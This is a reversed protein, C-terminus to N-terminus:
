ARLRPPRTDIQLDLVAEEQWQMVLASVNDCEAGARTEALTMLEPLARAPDKGILGTLLLRPTLPSWLGDSCLLVLDGKALRASGAPDTAPEAPGGLCRLLKSREPHAQVAEERIRGADVLQQVHTHDKTRAAIRGERILYLRSDGISSWFAYGDQVVCGVVTTRPDDGLGADRGAKVVAAHAGSVARSLFLSPDILNPKAQAQFAQAFHELAAAAALEGGKYGGMGDALALLVANPARWHGVRDQNYRRAGKRTEQVIAFKM